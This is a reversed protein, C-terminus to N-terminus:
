SRIESLINDIKKVTNAMELSTQELVAADRGQQLLRSLAETQQEMLSLHERVANIRGRYQSATENLSDAMDTLNDRKRFKINGTLDGQSLKAAERGLRYAPGAIRHSYFLHLVAMGSVILVSIVLYILAMRTFLVKDLEQISSLVTGYGEGLGAPLLLITGWWAIMAGLIVIIATNTFLLARYNRQTTFGM